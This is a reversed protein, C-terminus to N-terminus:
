DFVKRYLFEIIKTLEAKDYDFDKLTSRVLQKLQKESLNEINRLMEKEDKFGLKKFEEDKTNGFLNMHSQIVEESIM